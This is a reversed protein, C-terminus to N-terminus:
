DIYVEPIPINLRNYYEENFKLHGNEWKYSCGYGSKFHQEHYLVKNYSNENDLWTLHKVGGDLFSAPISKSSFLQYNLLEGKEKDEYIVDNDFYFNYLSQNPRPNVRFIRPPCFGAIWEKGSFIYNKFPIRVWDYFKNDERNIYEIIKEIQHETYYEDSLDLLWIIDCKEDLLHKLAINRAESELMAMKPAELFQIYNINQYRELLEVTKSNDQNINLDEYEKFKVSVFSFVLDKNEATNFWPKLREGLKDDCAYGCGLIGIKM